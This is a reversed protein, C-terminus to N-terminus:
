GERRKPLPVIAVRARYLFAKSAQDLSHNMTNM